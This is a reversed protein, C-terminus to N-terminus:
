LFSDFVKSRAAYGTSITRLSDFSGIWAIFFDRGELEYLM